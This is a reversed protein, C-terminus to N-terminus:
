APSTDDEALELVTDSGLHLYVEHPTTEDPEEGDGGGLDDAGDYDEDSYPYIPYNGRREMENRHLNGGSDFYGEDEQGNDSLDGETTDDDYEMLASQLADDQAIAVKLDAVEKPLISIIRTQTADLTFCVVDGVEFGQNRASTRGGKPLRLEVRQGGDLLRTVTAVNTNLFSPRM